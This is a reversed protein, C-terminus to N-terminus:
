EDQKANKCAEEIREREGDSYLAGFRNWYDEWGFLLLKSGDSGIILYPSEGKDVRELYTDPDKIFKNETVSPLATYDLM